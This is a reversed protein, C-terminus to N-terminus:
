AVQAPDVQPEVNVPCTPHEIMWQLLQAFSIGKYAAIEPVISLPTMGPLTNVELVYQAPVEGRVHDYRIDVRSVGTVGLAQVSKQAIRFAKQMEMEPIRAPM